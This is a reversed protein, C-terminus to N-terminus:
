ASLSIFTRPFTRLVIQLDTRSVRLKFLLEEVRIGETRVSGGKVESGSASRLAESVCASRLFVLLRRFLNQVTVPKGAELSSAYEAEEQTWPLGSGDDFFAGLKSQEGGKTQDKTVAAGSAWPWFLLVYSHQQRIFHKRLLWIVAEIVVRDFKANRTQMPPILESMLSRLTLGNSAARSILALFDVLELNMHETESINESLVVAELGRKFEESDSSTPISEPALVIVSEESITDVIAALGHNVLHGALRLLQSAPLGCEAQLEHISRTPTAKQLVSLIQPSTICSLSAIEAADRLLLLSHYPRMNPSEVDGVANITSVKNNRPIVALTLPVGGPLEVHSRGQTRLDSGIRTLLDALVSPQQRHLLNIQESVFRGIQEQLLLAEGLMQAARQIIPELSTRRESIFVASFAVLSEHDEEYDEIRKVDALSETASNKIGFPANVLVPYSVVLTDGLSVSVCARNAARPLSLRALIPLLHLPIDGTHFTLKANRSRENQAIVLALSLRTLPNCIVKNTM